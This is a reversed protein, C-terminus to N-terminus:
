VPGGWSRLRVSRVRSRTGGAAVAAVGLLESREGDTLYVGAAQTAAPRNYSYDDVREAAYGQSNRLARAAVELGIARARVSVDAVSEPVLDYVTGLTLEAITPARVPDWDDAAYAELEALTFLDPV